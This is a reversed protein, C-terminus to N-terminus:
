KGLGRMWRVLLDTWSELSGKGLALGFGHGGTPFIHM